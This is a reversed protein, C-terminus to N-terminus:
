QLVTQAEIVPLPIYGAAANCYISATNALSQQADWVRYSAYTQGLPIEAGHHGAFVYQHSGNVTFSDWEADLFLSWHTQVSLKFAPLVNSGDMAPGLLSIKSANGDLPFSALPFTMQVPSNLGGHLIHPFGTAIWSLDGTNTAMRFVLHARAHNVSPYPYPDGALLARTEFAPQGYSDTAGAGYREHLYLGETAWPGNVSVRYSGPAGFPIGQLQAPPIIQAVAYEVPINVMARPYPRRTVDLCGVAAGIQLSQGGVHWPLACEVDGNAPLGPEVPWVQCSTPAPIPDLPQCVNGDGNVDILGSPCDKKIPWCRQMLPNWFEGAPCIPTPTADAVHVAPQAQVVPRAAFLLTLSLSATCLLAFQFRRLGNRHGTGGTSEKV